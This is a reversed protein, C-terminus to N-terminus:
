RDSLPEPSSTRWYEYALEVEPDDPRIVDNLRKQYIPGYYAVYGTRFSEETGIGQFESEVQPRTLRFPNPISRGQQDQRAPTQRDILLLRDDVVLTRPDQFPRDLKISRTKATQRRDQDLQSQSWLYALAGFGAIMFFVMLAVATDQVTM